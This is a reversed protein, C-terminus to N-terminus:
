QVPYKPQYAGCQFDNLDDEQDMRTLECLIGETIGNKGCHECEPFQDPHDYSLCTPCIEQWNIKNPGKANKPRKAMNDDERKTWQDESLSVNLTIM